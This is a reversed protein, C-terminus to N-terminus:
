FPILNSDNSYSGLPKIRISSIWGIKEQNSNFVPAIFGPYILFKNRNTGLNEYLTHSPVNWPELKQVLNAQRIISIEIDPDRSFLDQIKQTLVMLVDYSSYRFFELNQAVPINENNYVEIIDGKRITKWFSEDTKFNTLKLASYIVDKSNNTIETISLVDHLMQVYFHIKIQNEVSLSKFSNLSYKSFPSNKIELKSEILKSLSFLDNLFTSISSKENTEFLHLHNM